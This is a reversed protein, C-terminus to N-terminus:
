RLLGAIASEWGSLLGAFGDAMTTLADRGVASLASLDYSVTVVSTADGIATGSVTVTGASHGPAVRVYRYGDPRRDAIVWITATGGVDTTFVTGPGTHDPHDEAYRPAWHDVWDREGEPTFLRLAEQLPLAVTVQGTRRMRQM